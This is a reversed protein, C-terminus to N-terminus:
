APPTAPMGRSSTGSAQSMTITSPPSPVSSEAARAMPRRSIGSNGTFRPPSPKRVAIVTSSNYGSSSRASRLSCRM